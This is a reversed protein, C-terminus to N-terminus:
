DGAMVAQLWRRPDLSLRKESEVRYTECEWWAQRVDSMFDMGSFRPWAREIILAELTLGPQHKGKTAFSEKYSTKYQYIVGHSEFTLVAAAAIGNLRLAWVHARGMKAFRRTLEEYYGRAVPSDRLAEGGQTSAKWSGADVEVFVPFGKEVADEGTWCDVSIPGFDRELQRMAGRLKKHMDPHSALYEEHSSSFRLFKQERAQRGVVVSCPFSRMVRAMATDSPFFGLNAGQWAQSALARKLARAALPECGSRVLMNTDDTHANVLGEIQRIPVKRLRGPRLNAALRGIQSPVVRLPLVADLRGRERVAVVMPRGPTKQIRGSADIGPATSSHAGFHHIWSLCFAPENYFSRHSAADHLEQWEPAIREMDAVDVLIQLDM